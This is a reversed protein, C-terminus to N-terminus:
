APGQTHATSRDRTEIILQAKGTQNPYLDDPVEASGISEALSYRACGNYSRECHRAKMLIAMEPIDSITRSLFACNELYPCSHM